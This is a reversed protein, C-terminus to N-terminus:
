TPPPSRREPTCFRSGSWSTRSSACTAPGATAACRQLAARDVRPPRTRRARAAARSFHRVLPAIDEARERLPPLSDPDRQPPVLLDERFRATACPARRAGQEHRRRHARQGSDAQRRRGARDGESRHARLLKAQAEAGSTASRTSSCRAATRWSSAASAGSADRRHLRRARPRVDRERRSRAPDGRLERARVAQRPAASGCHIAAAVLEKGTGSEGTILVRADTPAVRAILARVRECRRARRRGDRRTLGFEERLAAGRPAGPAARARSRLALLM